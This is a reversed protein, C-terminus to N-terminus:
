HPGGAMCSCVGFMFDPVDGCDDCPLPDLTIGIAIVERRAEGYIAKWEPRANIVTTVRSGIRLSTVRGTLRNGKGYGLSLVVKRGIRCTTRNWRPGFSRFEEKKAGSKFDDFHQRVLPVFLATEPKM